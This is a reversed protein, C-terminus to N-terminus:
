ADPDAPPPPPPPTFEEVDKAPLIMVPGAAVLPAGEPGSHEQKQLPAFDKPHLKELKWALAKFDGRERAVRQDGQGIYGPPLGKGDVDIITMTEVVYQGEAREVENIFTAYPERGEEAQKRWNSLTKYTIGVAMCAYKAPTGARLAQIIKAKEPDTMLTLKSPRGLATEEESV